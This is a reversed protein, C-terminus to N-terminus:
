DIEDVGGPPARKRQSSELSLCVLRRRQLLEALEHIHVEFVMPHRDVLSSTTGGGEILQRSLFLVDSSLPGM